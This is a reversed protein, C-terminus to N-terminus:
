LTKLNSPKINKLDGLFNLFGWFGEAKFWGKM